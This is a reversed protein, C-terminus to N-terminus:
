SNGSDGVSTSNIKVALDQFSGITPGTALYERWKDMGIILRVAEMEDEAELLALPLNRPAPIVFTIGDHEVTTSTDTAEAEAATTKSTTSKPM